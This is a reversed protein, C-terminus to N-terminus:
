KLFMICHEKDTLVHAQSLPSFLSSPNPSNNIVRYSGGLSFICELSLSDLFCKVPTELFVVCKEAM